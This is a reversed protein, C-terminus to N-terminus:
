GDLGPWRGGGTRMLIFFVFYNGFENNKPSVRMIMMGVMRGYVPLINIRM